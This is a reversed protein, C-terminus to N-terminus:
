SQKPSQSRNQEGLLSVLGAALLTFGALVFLGADPRDFHRDSWVKINPAVFGGLAGIANIVAIGGAAARGSLYDTPFTWFIPQVAIFGSAAVCMAGLAITRNPVLFEASALGSAALVAAAIMRHCKWRDALRPVWFTAALACIWPVASVVGVEPGILKGLIAAVETPLYVVVGYVSMQILFYITAFHLLRPDALARLFKSPGHARRRFDEDAFALQMAAREANTLWFADSPGDSLYWFAWVGVVVAVLGEILFMWQWGLMGAEGHLALLYGSLPGGFIFALPAGFYFQGLIESRAQNPFWYTLYLIVGPFFGAEAFGLALRLIYFSIPGRVFMAAISIIGWIVMIRSMWIRAGIRHMILNSPVEFLAYSLFFLGAGTAFASESIGTSAQFSQKAFGINARDLFSVVYMLLLFPVLRRRTRSM